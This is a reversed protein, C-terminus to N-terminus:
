GNRRAFTPELALHNTYIKGVAHQPYGPSFDPVKGIDMDHVGVCPSEGECGSSEVPDYGAKGRFLVSTYYIM